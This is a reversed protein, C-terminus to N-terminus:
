IATDDVHRILGKAGMAMRAKTEYDVWNSGDDRLRPLTYTNSSTGFTDVAAPSM